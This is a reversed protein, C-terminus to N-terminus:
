PQAGRDILEPQVAGTYAPCEKAARGTQANAGDLCIDDICYSPLPLVPGQEFDAVRWEGGDRVLRLCVAVRVAGGASSWIAGLATAIATEADLFRIRIERILFPTHESWVARRAAKSNEEKVFKAVLARIAHEDQRISSGPQPIASFGFLTILAGYRLM